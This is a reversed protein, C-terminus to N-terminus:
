KVAMHIGPIDKLLSAIYDTIDGKSEEDPGPEAELPYDAPHMTLTYGHQGGHGQLIIRLGLPNQKAYIAPVEDYIYEDRGIFPIGALVRSSVIEAVEELSKNSWIPLNCVLYIM